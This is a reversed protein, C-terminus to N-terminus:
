AWLSCQNIHVLMVPCILSPALSLCRSLSLSLSLSLPSCLLSSPSPLIFFQSAFSSFAPFVSLCFLTSFCGLSIVLSSSSPRVPPPLALSLSSSLSAPSLPVHRRLLPARLAPAAAAPPAPSRPPLASPHPIANQLRVGHLLRRIRNNYM